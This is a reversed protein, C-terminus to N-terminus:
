NCFVHPNQAKESHDIFLLLCLIATSEFCRAFKLSMNEM